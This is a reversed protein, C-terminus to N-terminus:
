LPHIGRFSTRRPVGVLTVSLELHEALADMNAIIPPDRIESNGSVGRPPACCKRLRINEYFATSVNADIMEVVKLTERVSHVSRRQNEIPPHLPDLYLGRWEDFPTRPREDAIRFLHAPAVYTGCICPLIIVSASLVDKM